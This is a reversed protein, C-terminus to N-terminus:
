WWKRVQVITEYPFPIGRVESSSVELNQETFKIDLKGNNELDLKKFLNYVATKLADSSSPSDHDDSKYYCTDTAGTPIELTLYTDDEFQVIWNCGNAHESIASYSVMDKLITYIIKNFESGASFNATSVGTTLRILNSEGVVFNPINISYPDGLRTYDNGYESLNYVVNNNTTNDISVEKTWRPGSYSIVKTELISSNTPLNFSGSYVDSFLKEKTIVIGYPIEEKIYDFEIYSDPYLVASINETANVIQEHYSISIISSAIDSYAKLLETANNGLRYVGGGVKAIESLTFNADHCDKITFGVSSINANLESHTRNSSWIANQV